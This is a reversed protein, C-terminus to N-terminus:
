PSRCCRAGLSYDYYDYSHVEVRADCGERTSRAYFGGVFTGELDSVWEDLNGVMDYVADDGWESKCSLTTGTPRLLPTGDEEQVQNLRPDLHGVSANGHLLRAPHTARFVNCRGEEYVEGYPFKRRKEGRCAVVWEEATCLRKGGRACARAAAEGSLYGNPIADRACVAMPEFHPVALSWEPPAPVPLLCGPGSKADRRARQWHQYERRTAEATPHYYPSLSQGSPADVLTLEFRDICFGPGVAVM